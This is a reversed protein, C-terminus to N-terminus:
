PFCLFAFSSGFSVLWDGRGVGAELLGVYFTLLASNWVDRWYVAFRELREAVRAHIRMHQREAPHLRPPRLRRPPRCEFLGCLLEILALQFKVCLPLVAAAWLFLPELLVAPGWAAPARALLDGSACHGQPSSLSSQLTSLSSLTPSASLLAILPPILPAVDPAPLLGSPLWATLCRLASPLADPDQNTSTSDALVSEISQLVLPAAAPLSETLQIKSNSQPLLNAAGVDEAAAGFLRTDACEAAVVAGLWGELVSPRGPVLRVALATLTGPADWLGLQHELPLSALDGRSIKAAATHAGFFQVNADAAAHALFPVVLVRRAHAAHRSTREPTIPAAPLDAPAAPAYVAQIPADLPAPPSSM